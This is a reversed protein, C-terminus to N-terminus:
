RADKKNLITLRGLLFQSVSVVCTLDRTGGFRQEGDFYQMLSNKINALANELHSLAIESRWRPTKIEKKVLKELNKLWPIVKQRTELPIHV